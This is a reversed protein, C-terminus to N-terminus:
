RFDGVPKVDYSSNDKSNTKSKIDEVISRQLQDIEKGPACLEELTCYSNGCRGLNDSVYKMIKKLYKNRTFGYLGDREKCMGAYRYQEKIIMDLYRDSFAIKSYFDETEKPIREQSAISKLNRIDIEDPDIFNMGFFYTNEGDEGIRTVGILELLNLVDVNAYEIKGYSVAIVKQNEIGNSSYNAMNNLIVKPKPFKYFNWERLINPVEFGNSNTEEKFNSNYLENIVVYDRKTKCKYLLEQQNLLQAKENEFHELYKQYITEYHSNKLIALIKNMEEYEDDEMKTGHEQKLCKSVQPIYIVRMLFNRIKNSKNEDLVDIGTEVIYDRIEKTSDNDINKQAYEIYGEITNFHPLKSSTSTNILKRLLESQQEKSLESEIGRNNRNLANILSNSISNFFNVYEKFVPKKMQPEAEEISNNLLNYTSFNEKLGPLYKSILKYMNTEGLYNFMFMYNNDNM